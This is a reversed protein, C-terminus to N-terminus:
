LFRFAGILNRWALVNNRVHNYDWYILASVPGVSSKFLLCEWLKQFYIAKVASTNQGESQM